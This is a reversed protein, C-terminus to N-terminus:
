TCHGYYDSEFKGSNIFMTACCGVASACSSFMGSWSNCCYEVKVRPVRGETEWTIKAVRGAECQMGGEEAWKGTLKLAKAGESSEPEGQSEAAPEEQTQPKCAPQLTPFLEDYGQEGKTVPPKTISSVVWFDDACDKDTLFAYPMTFYGEDGWDEGGM